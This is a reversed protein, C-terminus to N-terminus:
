HKSELFRNYLDGMDLARYGAQALDWALVSATAGAEMYIVWERSNYRKIQALLEDYQAFANREPVFIYEKAPASAFFGAPDDIVKSKHNCVFLIKRGEWLKRVEDLPNRILFYADAYKQDAFKVHQLIPEMRRSGHHLFWRYAPHGQPLKYNNLCVICNETSGSECIQTLRDALKNDPDNFSNRRGIINNFEGDGIRSFSKGQALALSEEPSLVDPYHKLLEQYKAMNEASFSIVDWKRPLSKQLKRRLKGFPIFNYALKKIRWAAYQPTIQYKIM